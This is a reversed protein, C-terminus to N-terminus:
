PIHRARGNAKDPARLSGDTEALELGSSYFDLNNDLCWM